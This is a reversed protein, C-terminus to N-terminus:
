PNITMGLRVGEVRPVEQRYPHFVVLIREQQDDTKVQGWAALVCSLVLLCTVISNNCM